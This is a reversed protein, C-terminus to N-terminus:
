PTSKKLFDPDAPVELASPVSGSYATITANAATIDSESVPTILGVTASAAIGVSLAVVTTSAKLLEETAKVTDQIADTLEKYDKGSDAFPVETSAEGWADVFASVISKLLKTLCEQLLRLLKAPLSLIWQIIARIKVLVALVYKQFEIIPEIYLKIFTRIEQAAAKLRNIVQSFSGSADSFGMLQQIKRIGERIWKAIAKIFKKLGLSKVLDNVFDCSHVLNKNTIAISSNADCTGRASPSITPTGIKSVNGPDRCVASANGNAVNIIIDKEELAAKKNNFTIPNFDTVTTTTM